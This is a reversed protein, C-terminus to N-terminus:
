SLSKSTVQYKCKLSLKTDLIGPTKKMVVEYKTIPLLMKNILSKGGETKWLGSNEISIM